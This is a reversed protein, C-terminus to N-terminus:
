HKVGEPFAMASAAGVTRQLWCLLQWLSLRDLCHYLGEWYHGLPQPFGSAATISGASDRGQPWMCHSDGGAGGWWTGLMWSCKMKSHDWHLPPCTSLVSSMALLAVCRQVVGGGGEGACLRPCKFKWVFLYSGAQLVTQWGHLTM